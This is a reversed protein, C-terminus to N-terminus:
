SGLTQLRQGEHKAIAFPFGDLNERQTSAPDLGEDVEDKESEEDSGESPTDTIAKM